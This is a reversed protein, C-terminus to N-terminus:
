PAFIILQTIDIKFFSKLAFSNSGTNAVTVSGSQYTPINSGISFYNNLDITAIKRCAVDMTYVGIPSNQESYNLTFMYQTPTNSYAASIKDPRLAVLKNDKFIGCIFKVTSGVTSGVIEVGTQTQYVLKNESFKVEMQTTLNPIKTWKSDLPDGISSTYVGDGAVGASFNTIGLESESLYTNTLKYTGDEVFPAKVYKWTPPLGEGQSVLVQNTEGPNGKALDTGGLSLENRLAVDGNVDLTSNPKETGIGVQSFFKSSFVLSSILLLSGVYKQM